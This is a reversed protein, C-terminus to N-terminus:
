VDIQFQLGFALLQWLSGKGDPTEILGRMMSFAGNYVVSSGWNQVTYAQITESVADEVALSMCEFNQKMDSSGWFLHFDMRVMVVGSFNRPKELNQNDVRDVYMSLKNTSVVGYKIIEDPPIKGLLFSKTNAVYPSAPFDITFPSVNYTSAVAALNANFGTTSHRMKSILAELPRASIKM